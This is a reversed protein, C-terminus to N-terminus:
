NKLWKLVEGLGPRKGTLLIGTRFIKAAIWVMLMISAALVALSAAIEWAPPTIIPLRLIMMSATLFPILTMTVLAPSEPNQIAIMALALPLALFLTLYGTMQQAEQETSALCGFAVFLAAYLLFGLIFFLIMLGLNDLPLNTIGAALVLAIGALAWLGVQVFGLMSLGLIKGFMLDTASCSSVLVEVIRNSKEEVMSRVLLQGSGLVLIMLMILFVYSIGFSELFGSEQEGEPSVRVTRLEAKRNLERVRAPDLGANELKHSAIVESLAQQMLMINEIDATNRARYEANLSDLAGPPVLLAGDATEALIDADANLAAQEPDSSAPIRRISYLPRGDDLKFYRALAKDLSDALVGTGDYLILQEQDHKSFSDKLLAPGLIFLGMIMPTLFLGIIFSKTRVREVFEWQAVRFAKRSIM